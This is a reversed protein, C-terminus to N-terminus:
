TKELSGIFVHVSNNPNHAFDLTLVEFPKIILLGNVTGKYTDGNVLVEDRYRAFLIFQKGSFVKGSIRNFSIQQDSEFVITKTNLIQSVSGVILNRGDPGEFNWPEGVSIKYKNIM